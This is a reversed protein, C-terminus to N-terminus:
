HTSKKPSHLQWLNLKLKFLIIYKYLEWMEEVHWPGSNMAVHRDNVALCNIKIVKQINLPQNFKLSYINIPLEDDDDDNLLPM